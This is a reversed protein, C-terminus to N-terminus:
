ELNLCCIVKGDISKVRPCPGPPGGCDGSNDKRQSSQEDGAKAPVSEQGNLASLGALTLVLAMAWVLLVARLAVENSVDYKGSM